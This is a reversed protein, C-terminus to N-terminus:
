EPVTWRNYVATYTNAGVRRTFVLRNNGFKWEGTSAVKGHLYSTHSLTNEDIQKLSMRRAPTSGSRSMYEVGYSGDLEFVVHNSQQTGDHNIALVHYLLKGDETLDFTRLQARYNEALKSAALDLKWIGLLARPAADLASAFPRVEAAPQAAAPAAVSALLASALGALVMARLGNRAGLNLRRM